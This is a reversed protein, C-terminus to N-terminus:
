DAPEFDAVSLDADVVSRVKRAIAYMHPRYEPVARELASRGTAIAAHTYSRPSRILKRGFSRWKATSRLDAADRAMQGPGADWYGFQYFRFRTEFGLAALMDRLETPAYLRVHGFHGLRSRQLFALFPSQIVRAMSGRLINARNRISLLNPTSILLIGHLKLIRNAELLAQIPNVYLHEIVETLVVADACASALPWPETEIDTKFVPIGIKQMADAFTQEEIPSLGAHFRQQARLGREPEQDLAIVHWHRALARTLAGPFAGADVILGSPCKRRLLELATHHGMCLSSSSQAEEVAPEGISLTSM